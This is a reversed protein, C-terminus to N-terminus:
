NWRCPCWSAGPNVAWLSPQLPQRQGIGEQSGPVGPRRATGREPNQVRGGQTHHWSAKCPVMVMAPLARPAGGMPPGWLGGTRHVPVVVKWGWRGRQPIAVCGRTSGAPCSTGWVDCAPTPFRLMMACPAPPPVPPTRPVLLWAM